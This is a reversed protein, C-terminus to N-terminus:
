ANFFETARLESLMTRAIDETKLNALRGQRRKIEAELEKPPYTDEYLDTLSLRIKVAAWQLVAARTPDVPAKQDTNMNVIM